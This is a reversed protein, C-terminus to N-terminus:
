IKEGLKHLFSKPLYVNELKVCEKFLPAIQKPRYGALGCGIPTVMFIKDPNNKVHEVFIDVWYKIKALSLADSISSNVTPIAYTRGQMGNAQGYKAGFKLADRAAGRGHRGSENSGFVFVENPKLETIYEPTINM